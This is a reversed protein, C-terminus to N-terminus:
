VGVCVSLCFLALRRSLLVARSVLKIEEEFRDGMGGDAQGGDGGAGALAFRRQLKQLVQVYEAEASARAKLYEAM